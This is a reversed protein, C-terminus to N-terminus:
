LEDLRAQCQAFNHQIYHKYSQKGDNLQISYYKVHM